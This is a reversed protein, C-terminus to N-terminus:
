PLFTLPVGPPGNQFYLVRTSWLDKFTWRDTQMFVRKHIYIAMHFLVPLLSESQRGQSTVGCPLTSASSWRTVSSSASFLGTPRPRFSGSGRSFGFYPMAVAVASDSVSDSVCFHFNVNFVQGEKRESTKLSLSFWATVGTM